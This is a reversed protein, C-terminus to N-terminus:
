YHTRGIHQTTTCHFDNMIAPLAMNVISGDLTSMFIGIAVFFFLIWKGPTKAIPEM